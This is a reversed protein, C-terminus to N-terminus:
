RGAPQGPPSWGANLLQYLVFDQWRGAINLYDPAMGIRVFGNRELVRRSGANHPLVEAQIRHLGLETFALRVMERVAATALGRGNHSGSVWYGLSVSQFAGRIINNLAIRGVVQGSEDLILHVLGTGQDRRELAAALDARQGAVTFWEDTRLPEWPALFDRNLAFLEALAPADDLTAPRTVNM